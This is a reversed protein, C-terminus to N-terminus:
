KSNATGVNATELYPAGALLIEGFLVQSVGNNNVQENRTIGDYDGTEVETNVPPLLGGNQSKNLVVFFTDNDNEGENDIKQVNETDKNNKIIFNDNEESSMTIDDLPGKTKSSKELVPTPEIQQVPIHKTVTEVITTPQVQTHIETVVDVITSTQTNTLILTETVAGESQSVLSTQTHTVTLTHTLNVFGISSVTKPPESLTKTHTVVTTRFETKTPITEDSVKVENGAHHTSQIIPQIEKITPKVIIHSSLSEIDSSLIVHSTQKVNENLVQTPKIFDEDAYIESSEIITGEIIDPIQTNIPSINKKISMHQTPSLIEPRPLFRTPAIIVTSKSPMKFKSTNPKMDNSRVPYPKRTGNKNGLTNVIMKNNSINESSEHGDSDRLNTESSSTENQISKINDIEESNDTLPNESSMESSNLESSYEVEYSYSDDPVSAITPLKSSESDPFRVSTPAFNFSSYYDVDSSTLWGSSIPTPFVIKPISPPTITPSPMDNFLVKSPQDRPPPLLQSSPKDRNFTPRRINNLIHYAPRYTSVNDKNNPKFTSMEDKKIPKITFVENNNNPRYTSIEDKISQKRLPKQTQYRPPQTRQPKPRYPPPSRMPTPRSTHPKRTPLRVNSLVRQPPPSMGMIMESNSSPKINDITPPPPSLDIIESSTQNMEIDTTTAFTNRTPKDTGKEVIIPKKDNIYVTSTIINSNNVVHTGNVHTFVPESSPNTKISHENHHSASITSSAIIPKNFEEGINLEINDEYSANTANEIMHNIQWHPQQLQHDLITATNVTFPRPKMNYLNNKFIPKSTTGSQHTTKNYMRFPKETQTGPKFTGKNNKDSSMVEEQLLTLEDSTSGNIENSSTVIPVKMSELSVEGDNEYMSDSEEEGDYIEESNEYVPKPTSEIKIKVTTFENKNDKIPINYAPQKPDDTSSPLYNFKYPKNNFPSIGSYPKETNIPKTFPKGINFSTVGQPQKSWFDSPPKGVSEIKQGFNPLSEKENYEHILPINKRTTMEVQKINKVNSEHLVSSYWGHSNTPINPILKAPRKQENTKVDDTHEIITDQLATDENTMPFNAHSNMFSPIAPNKIIPKEVYENYYNHGVITTEVKAATSKNWRNDGIPVRGHEDYVSPKMSGHLDYTDLPELSDDVKIAFNTGIPIDTNLGINPSSNIPIQMSSGIIQGDEGINSAVNTATNLTVAYVKTKDNDEHLSVSNNVVNPSSVIPYHSHTHDSNIVTLHSSQINNRNPYNNQTNGLPASPIHFTYTPNAKNNPAQAAFYIESTVKQPTKEKPVPHQINLFVKMDQVPKKHVIPRQSYPKNLDYPSDPNFVMKPPPPPVALYNEYEKDIINKGDKTKDKGKNYKDYESNTPSFNEPSYTTIQPGIQVQTEQNSIPAPIKANEIPINYDKWKLKLENRSPQETKISPINSGYSQIPTNSNPKNLVNKNSPAVNHVNTMQPADISFSGFYGPEPYPLPDDIYDGTKHPESMGAFVIATSSGHPILVNAVRSPQIDVLFPKNVEASGTITYGDDTRIKTNM